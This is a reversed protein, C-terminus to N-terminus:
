VFSLHCVAFYKSKILSNRMAACFPSSESSQSGGGQGVEGRGTAVSSYKVPLYSLSSPQAGHIHDVLVQVAPTPQISPPPPPPSTLHNNRHRTSPAASQCGAMTATVSTLDRQQSGADPPTVRLTLSRGRDEDPWPPTAQLCRRPYADPFSPLPGSM